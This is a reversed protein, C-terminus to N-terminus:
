TYRGMKVMTRNRQILNGVPCAGPLCWAPVVWPRFVGSDLTWLGDSGCQWVAWRPVLACCTLGCEVADSRMRIGMSGDSRRVGAARATVDNAPVDRVIEGM